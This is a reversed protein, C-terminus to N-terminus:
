RVLGYHVNRKSHSIHGNFELEGFALNIFFRKADNLIVENLYNM